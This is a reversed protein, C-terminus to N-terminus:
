IHILSLKYVDTLTVKAKEDAGAYGGGAGLLGATLQLLKTKEKPRTAM